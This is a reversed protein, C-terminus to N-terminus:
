LKHKSLDFESTMKVKDGPNLKITDCPTTTSITEWEQGNITLGGSRGYLVQADCALKGNVHIRMNTAGDHRNGNIDSLPSSNM